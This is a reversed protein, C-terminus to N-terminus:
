DDIRRVFSKGLTIITEAAAYMEGITKKQMSIESALIERSNSHRRITDALEDLYGQKQERLEEKLAAVEAELETIRCVSFVAKFRELINM